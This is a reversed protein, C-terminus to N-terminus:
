GCYDDSRSSSRSTSSGAVEGEKGPVFRPLENESGDVTFCTKQDIPQNLQPEWHPFFPLRFCYHPLPM